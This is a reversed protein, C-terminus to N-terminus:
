LPGHEASRSLCRLPIVAAVSSEPDASISVALPSLTNRTPWPVCIIHSLRLGQPDFIEIECESLAARYRASIYQCHPTADDLAACPRGSAM